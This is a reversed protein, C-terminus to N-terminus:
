YLIVGLLRDIMNTGLWTWVPIALYVGFRLVTPARIPWERITRVHDRYAILGQLDYNGDGGQGMAAARARGIAEDVRALEESKLEAVRIRVGRLPLMLAMTAAVLLIGVTVLLTYRSSPDAFLPMAISAGIALLLGNRLGSRAIPCLGELTMLEVSLVERGILSKFQSSLVAEYVSTGLVWYLFLTRGIEWRDDAPGWAPCDVLGGHLASGLLALGVLEGLVGFAVRKGHMSGFTRDNIEQIRDERGATLPALEEMDRMGARRGYASATYAYAILLLAVLEAWRGSQLWFPRDILYIGNFSGFLNQYAVYVGVLVVWFLFGTAAPPLPVADFLRHSIPSRTPGDM